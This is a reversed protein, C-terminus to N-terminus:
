PRQPEEARLKELNELVRRARELRERAAPQDPDIILSTEWVEVAAAINGEAYLREALTGLVATQRDVKEKLRGRLLEAEANGPDAALVRALPEAAEVLRDAVLLREAQALDTRLSSQLAQSREEEQAAIRASQRALIDERLAASGPEPASAHVLDICRRALELDAARQRDACRLLADQLTQLEIKRALTGASAEFHAPDARELRELLAIEDLLATARRAVLRDEWEERLSLWRSRVSALREEVLQAEPFRARAVELVDLAAGWRGADVAADAEALAEDPTAPEPPQQRPQPPPPPEPEPRWPRDACGHLFFALILM